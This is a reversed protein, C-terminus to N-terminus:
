GLSAPMLCLQDICKLEILNSRELPLLDGIIYISWIM